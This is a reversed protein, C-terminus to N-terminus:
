QTPQNPNNLYGQARDSLGQREVIPKLGLTVAAMRRDGEPLSSIIQQKYTNYAAIDNRAVESLNNLLRRLGQESVTARGAVVLQAYERDADSLGTGAGLNQIYSAVRRGAEATFVETNSTPLTAADIGFAQLYRSVNTKTEAFAGTFMNEVLPLSRNISNLMDVADNAKDRYDITSEVGAKALEESFVQGAQEIRQVSPPAQQLGLTAPSVWKSQTEDWVQGYDNVRYASINGNTDMWPEVNGKQGEIIATFDADPITAMRQAGFQESSIGAAQALTRRVSPSTTPVNAIERTRLDQGIDRLTTQDTTTRATAAVEPLNLAEARRALSEQQQGLAARDAIQTSLERSADAYKVANEMDGIGRYYQALQSLGAPNSPDIQALAQRQKREAAAAPASGIASGLNFMGQQYNPQLLGQIFSQGFRAM